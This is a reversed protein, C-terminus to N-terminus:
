FQVSRMDCLRLARVVLSYLQLYETKDVEFRDLDFNKVDYFNRSLKPAEESIPM